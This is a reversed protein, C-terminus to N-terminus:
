TIYTGEIHTHSDFQEKFALAGPEDGDATGPRLLRKLESKSEARKAEKLDVATIPPKRSV